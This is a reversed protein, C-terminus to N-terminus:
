GEWVYRRPLGRQHRQHFARERLSGATAISSFERDHSRVRFTFKSVSVLNLRMMRNM